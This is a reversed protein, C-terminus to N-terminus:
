AQQSIQKAKEKIENLDALQKVFNDINHIVAKITKLISELQTWMHKQKGILPVGWFQEHSIKGQSLMERILKTMYDDMQSM